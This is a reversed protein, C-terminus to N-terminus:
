LIEKLKFMPRYGADNTYGLFDVDKFYLNKYILKKLKERNKRLKVKNNNPHGEFYCIGDCYYNIIDWLNNEYGKIHRIVSLSFVIDFKEEGIIKKLKLLGDKIDFVYLEVNIDNEKCYEKAVKITGKKFDFGVARKAGQRIADICVVGMSCGIDLVSKDKFIPIGMVEYRHVMDRKGKIDELSQYIMKKQGFPFQANKIIKERLNKNM